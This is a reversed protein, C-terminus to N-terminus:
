RDNNLEDVSAPPPKTPSGHEIHKRARSVQRETWRKLVRARRAGLAPDNIAVEVNALLANLGERGKGDTQESSSWPDIWDDSQKGWRLVRYFYRPSQQKSMAFDMLAAALTIPSLALDRAAEVLLKCQLILVDRFLKQPQSKQPTEMGEAYRCDVRHQTSTAAQLTCEDCCNSRM